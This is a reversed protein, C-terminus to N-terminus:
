AEILDDGLARRVIRSRGFAALMADAGRHLLPLGATSAEPPVDVPEPAVLAEEIGARAAELLLATSLYPNGTADIPKVEIHAGHPNGGNAAVLRVAAERNELGWCLRAGSWRGPKLREASLPSGALVAGLSPLASLIGAIAAGGANTLGHPGDGGSLLPRGAQVLSLHQHAGSTALGALALPSFSATLGADRAAMAVVVRALVLDDAAELPPKPAISLEFQGQGYEAHLQEIELNATDARRLLARMFASHSLAAGLGYANWPESAELPLLVFEVEHGVLAQFGDSELRQLAAALATRSCTSAVAGDQEHVTCPAWFLGAELPRLAARVLRLRLDGVVSFRETFALQDDACFVNWSTSAGMGAESFADLRSAPVAKARPVGGPDVISGIVLSDHPISSPAAHVTM